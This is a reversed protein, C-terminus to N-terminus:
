HVVPRAADASPLERILPASGEWRDAGLRTCAPVVSGAQTRQTNSLRASPKM